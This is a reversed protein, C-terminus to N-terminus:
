LTSVSSEATRSRLTLAMSIRTHRSFDIYLFLLEPMEGNFLLMTLSLGLSLVRYIGMLPSLMRLNHCAQLGSLGSQLKCLFHPSPYLWVWMSYQIFSFWTAHSVFFVNTRRRHTNLFAQVDCKVTTWPPCLPRSPSDRRKIHEQNADHRHGGM